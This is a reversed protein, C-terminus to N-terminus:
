FAESAALLFIIRSIRVARWPQMGTLARQLADRYDQIQGGFIGLTGDFQMLM